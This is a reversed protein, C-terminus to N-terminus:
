PIYADSLCVKFNCSAHAVRIAYTDGAVLPNNVYGGYTKNDGVTFTMTEEIDARTMNAVIFASQDLTGGQRRKRSGGHEVSVYVNSFTLLFM